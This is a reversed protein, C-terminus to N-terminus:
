KKMLHKWSNTPRFLGESRTHVNYLKSIAKYDFKFAAWPAICASFIISLVELLGGLDGFLDLLSYIQRSHQITENSLSVLTVMYMKSPLGFAQLNQHATYDKTIM